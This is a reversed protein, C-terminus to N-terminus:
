EKKCEAVRGGLLVIFIISQNVEMLYESFKEDKQLEPHNEMLHTLMAIVDNTLKFGASAVKAILILKENM